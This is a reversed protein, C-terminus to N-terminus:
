CGDYPAWDSTGDAHVTNWFIQTQYAASAHGFLSPDGGHATWTSASFQYLGWHGSANWINPNGGSEARIVCSQFSSSVSYNGSPAPAALAQVPAATHVVPSPATRHHLKSCPMDWGDGDGDGCQYTAHVRPATYSATHPSGPIRLSQGAYIVNPNRVISRNAAYIGSWYRANGYMRQSISSLYDGARVTYTRLAVVTITDRPRIAERVWGHRVPSQVFGPYTTVAQAPQIFSTGFTVALAATLVFLVVATLQRQFAYFYRM